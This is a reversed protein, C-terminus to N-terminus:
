LVMQQTMFQILANFNDSFEDIQAAMNKPKMRKLLNVVLTRVSSMMRSVAQNKTRLGDEALTVDRHHHTVELLWHRRIADFLEDAEAQNTPRANSVYYCTEESMPSGDLGKRSRSVEICTGMGAKSWRAALADPRLDYCAYSRQDIRGHGRESEDIREYSAKNTLSHCICYRYLHHQNSKLGILYVGEAGNIAKTIKPTLHLADMTVKQSCLGSDNLLKLVAPRESEKSGNYYTQGVVQGSDHAQVSVCAEGRKHGPQISGRLEKGDFTFWRKAEQSLVLGFWDFLLRAFVEGDVKALLLPLQARSVVRSPLTQTATRLEEFHNAMHRQLRSLKGDRGCCIALTLGTLVFAMNHTKGRNDRGDLGPTNQLLQFFSTTKGQCPVTTM